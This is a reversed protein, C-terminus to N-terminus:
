YKHIVSHLCFSERVCHVSARGQKVSRMEMGTIAQMSLASM